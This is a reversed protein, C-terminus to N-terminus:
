ANVKSRILSILSSGIDVIMVVVASLALFLMAVLGLLIVLFAVGVVLKFM